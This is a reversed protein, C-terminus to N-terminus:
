FYYFIALLTAWLWTYPNEESRFNKFNKFINHYMDHMSNLKKIKKM